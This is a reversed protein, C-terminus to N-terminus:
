ERFYRTVLGLVIFLAGVFIVLISGFLLLGNSPKTGLIFIGALFLAVGLSIVKLSESVVEKHKSKMVALLETRHEGTSMHSHQSQAEKEKAVGEGLPSWM